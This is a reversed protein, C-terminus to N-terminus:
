ALVGDLEESENSALYAKCPKDNGRLRSVPDKRQGGAKAPTVFSFASGGHTNRNSNNVSFHTCTMINKVAALPDDFSPEM